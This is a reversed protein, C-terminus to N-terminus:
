RDQAEVEDADATDLRMNLEHREGSAASTAKLLLRELPTAPV